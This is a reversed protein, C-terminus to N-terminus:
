LGYNRLGEYPAHITQVFTRTCPLKRNHIRGQNEAKRDLRFKSTKAAPLIAQFQPTIVVNTAALMSYGHNLFGYDFCDRALVRVSQQPM